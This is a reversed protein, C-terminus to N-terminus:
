TGEAIQMRLILGVRRTAPVPHLVGNPVLAMFYTTSPIAQYV